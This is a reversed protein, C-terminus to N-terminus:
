HAAPARDHDDIHGQEVFRTILENVTEPDELQMFHGVGPVICARSGAPLSQEADEALGALM